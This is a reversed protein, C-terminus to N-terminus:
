WRLPEFFFPFLFPFAFSISLFPSSLCLLFRIWVKLFPWPIYTIPLIQRLRVEYLGFLLITLLVEDSKAVVPNVILDNVQRLAKGYQFAAQDGLYAKDPFNALATLAVATTARHIPSDSGARNYFPLLVALFGRTADTQRPLLVFNRFFFSTAQIEESIGIGPVLTMRSRELFINYANAIIGDQSHDTISELSQSGASLKPTGRPSSDM